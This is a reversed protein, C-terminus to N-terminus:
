GLVEIGAAGIAFRTVASNEPTHWRAQRVAGGGAGWGGGGIGGGGSDERLLLRHTVLQQWPKMM